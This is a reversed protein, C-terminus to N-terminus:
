VNIYQEAMSPYKFRYIEIGNVIRRSPMKFSKLGCTIIQGNEVLTELLSYFFEDSTWFLLFLSLIKHPYNM